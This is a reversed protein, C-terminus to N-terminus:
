YHIVRRSVGLRKAIASKKLGEDLLHQLLVLTDWGFVVDLEAPSVDFTFLV